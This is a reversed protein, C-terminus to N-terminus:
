GLNLLCVVNKVSYIVKRIVSTSEINPFCYIDKSACQSKIAVFQVLHIPNYTCINWLVDFMYSYTEKTCVRLLGLDQSPEVLNTTEHSLYKNIAQWILGIQEPRYITILLCILHYGIHM